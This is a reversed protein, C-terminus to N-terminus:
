LTPVVLLLILLQSQIHDKLLIMEAIVPIEMKGYINTILPLYFSLDMQVRVDPPLVLYLLQKQGM